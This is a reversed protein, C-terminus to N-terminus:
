FFIKEIVVTLILLLISLGHLAITKGQVPILEKPTDYNKWLVMINSIGLPFVLFVVLSFINFIGYYSLVIMSIYFLGLIGAYISRSKKLGFKVVLNRKGTKNDADYDPFENILLIAMVLFGAPIGILFHIIDLEGTILYGTGLTILPGFGFFTALEGFGREQFKFPPLSYFVAVLIGFILGLLSLPRNLYVAAIIVFFALSLSIISIKRFDKRKIKGELSLRSGGSFQNTNKNIKDTKDWDFYDNLTNASIHFLIVVALALSFYIWSFIQDYSWVWVAALIVPLVSATLFPLRMAKLYTIISM